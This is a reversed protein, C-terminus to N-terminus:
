FPLDSTMERWVLHCFFIKWGRPVGEIKSQGKNFPFWAGWRFNSLGLPLFVFDLIKKVETLFQHTWSVQFSLSTIEEFIQSSVFCILIFWLLHFDIVNKTTKCRFGIGSSYKTFYKMKILEFYGFLQRLFSWIETFHSIQSDATQTSQTLLM